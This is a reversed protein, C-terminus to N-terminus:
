KDTDPSDPDKGINRIRNQRERLKKRAKELLEREKKVFENYIYWTTGTMEEYGCIGAIFTNM